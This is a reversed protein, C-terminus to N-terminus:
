IKPRAGDALTGIKFINRLPLDSLGKEQIYSKVDLVKKVVETIEKINIETTANISESHVFELAGMGRARVYFLQELPSINVAEKHSFELWEKFMLHGFVNPLLDAIMPPLDRFTDGEFESFVQINPTRRIIYPILKKYLNANLFDPQYQFFSKRQDADYGIKGIETDKYLVSIIQNKARNM